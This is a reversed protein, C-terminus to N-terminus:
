WLEIQDPVHAQKLIQHLRHLDCGVPIRLKKIFTYQIEVEVKRERRVQFLFNLLFSFLYFYQNQGFHSGEESHFM